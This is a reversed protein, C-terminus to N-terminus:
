SQQDHCLIQTKNQFRCSAFPPNLALTHCYKGKFVSDATHLSSLAVAPISASSGCLLSRHSLLGPLPQYSKTQPTVTFVSSVRSSESHWIAFLKKVNQLYLFICLLFPCNETTRVMWLLIKANKLSFYDWRIKSIQYTIILCLELSACLLFILIKLIVRFGVVWFYDDKVNSQYRKLFREICVYLPISLHICSYFYKQLLPLLPIM